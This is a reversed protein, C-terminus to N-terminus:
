MSPIGLILQQSQCAYETRICSLIRNERSIQGVTGHFFRESANRYFAEYPEIVKGKWLMKM